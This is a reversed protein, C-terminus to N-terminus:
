SKWYTVRVKDATAPATSFTITATSITYDNGSGSEQLIGNLYVMEKGSVPTATLVFDTNSGNVTGSPTENIVFKSFNIKAGNSSLSFSAITETTDLKIQLNDSSIELGGSAAVNVALIGSSLSLGNGAVGSALALTESGSDVFSNSDFKIGAGNSTLTIGITNSTVTDSKIRLGTSVELGSTTNLRVAVDNANVTLSTDAAVLDVTQGTRTLGAGALIDSPGPLQIFTIATTDLTGGLDATSLWVTDGNNTGEEVSIIKGVVEVWADADITRTWSGSAVLYIGNQSATTQNKVLVRDGVSLSIGDITQTGTLSINATTAVRVTAGSTSIGAVQALVWARTAADQPNSPDALNTIPHSNLNFDGTAAVSGDKWFFSPGDALKSTAIAASSSIENNTVTGAKIQTNGRIQTSAM